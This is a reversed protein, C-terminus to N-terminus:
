LKLQWFGVDIFRGLKWGVEELVGARRFGFREHLRVSPENPLAILGLACHLKRARLRELLEGYLASGIGAGGAGREVYVTTEVTRGYASRAHFRSAYCYGAIRGERELVLWPFSGGVDAIRKAVEAESLPTEEFTIITNEVYHNYIAAIARADGAAATRVVGIKAAERSSQQM